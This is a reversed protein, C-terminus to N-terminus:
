DYNFCWFVLQYDIFSDAEQLYKLCISVYINDIVFAIDLFRVFPFEKKNVDVYYIYRVFDKEKIFM